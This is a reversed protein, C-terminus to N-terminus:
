DAIERPWVVRFREFVTEIDDQFKFQERAAQSTFFRRHGDLWSSLTRDGEGEDWAFKADVDILRKVIVDTTQWVCRPTADGGILVVHGGLRPMAEGGITFDRLLGATARKPGSTVLEALKEAM